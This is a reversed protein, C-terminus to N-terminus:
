LELKFRLTYRIRVAVPAGDVLAPSFRFKRMATLAEARFIEAGEVVTAQRVVGAADILVDLVVPGEIRKERAEPPYAPKVEVKVTPMRSVLYEETPTPLADPDDATLIQADQSKALTNGLKATVVGEASTQSNRSAGYVARGPKASAEPRNISRLAVPAQTPTKLPASVPAPPAGVVVPIEIPARPVEALLTAGLVVALVLGHVGVSVQWPSLSRTM